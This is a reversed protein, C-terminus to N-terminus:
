RSARGGAGGADTIQTCICQHRDIITEEVHHEHFIIQTTGYSGAWGDPCLSGDTHWGYTGNPQWCAPIRFKTQIGKTNTTTLTQTKPKYENLFSKRKESRMGGPIYKKKRDVRVKSHKLSRKRPRRM